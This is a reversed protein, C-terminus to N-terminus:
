NKPVLRRLLFSMTINVKKKLKVRELPNDDLLGEYRLVQFVKSLSYIKRNQTSASAYRRRLWQLYQEVHAETVDKLNTLKSATIFTRFDNAYAKLTNVSSIHKYLVAELSPQNIVALNNM